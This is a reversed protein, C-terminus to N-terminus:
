KCLIHTKFSKVQCHIYAQISKYNLLIVLVNCPCIRCDNTSLNTFSCHSNATDIYSSLPDKQKSNSHYHQQDSPCPQVYKCTEWSVSQKLVINNNLFYFINLFIAQIWDWWRWSWQFNLNNSPFNVQPLLAFCQQTIDVFKKNEFTQQCLGAINQM